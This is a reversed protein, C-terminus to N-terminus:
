AHKPINLQYETPKPKRGVRHKPINLQYETGPIKRPNHGPGPQAELWDQLKGPDIRWSGGVRRAPFTPDSNLLRYVKDRSCGLYAATQNITLLAQM